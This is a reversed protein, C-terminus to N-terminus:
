HENGPECFGMVQGYGKSSSDLRCSWKILIRGDIGLVEFDYKGKSNQLYVNRIYNKFSWYRSYDWGM